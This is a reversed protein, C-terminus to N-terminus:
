ELIASLLCVFGEAETQKSQKLQKIKMKLLINFWWAFFKRYQGNKRCVGKDNNRFTSKREGTGLLL